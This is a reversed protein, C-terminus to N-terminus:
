SHSTMDGPIYMFGHVALFLIIGKGNAAEPQYIDMLLALNSVTGYVVNKQKSVKGPQCFVPASFAFFLVSLLLKIKM